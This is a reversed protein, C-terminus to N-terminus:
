KAAESQSNQLRVKVIEGKWVNLIVSRLALFSVGFWTKRGQFCSKRTNLPTCSLILGRCDYRNNIRQTVVSFIVVM